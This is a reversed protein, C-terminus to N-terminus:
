FLPPLKRETAEDATLVPPGTAAGPFVRHFVDHFCLIPLDGDFGGALKRHVEQSSKKELTGIRM